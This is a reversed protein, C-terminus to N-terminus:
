HIGDFKIQLSDQIQLLLERTPWARDSEISEVNYELLNFTKAFEKISMEKKQRAMKIQTGISYRKENSILTGKMKDLVIGQCGMLFIIPVLLLNYFKM